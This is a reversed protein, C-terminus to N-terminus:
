RYTSSTKPIAEKLGIKKQRLNGLGGREGFINQDVRLVCLSPQDIIRALLRTVNQRFCAFFANNESHM